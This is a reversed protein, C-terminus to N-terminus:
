TNEGHLNTCLYWRNKLNQQRGGEPYDMRSCQLHLCRVAGFRQCSQSLVAIFTSVAPRESLRTDKHYNLSPRRLCQYTINRRIVNRPGFYDSFRVKKASQVHNELCPFHTSVSHLTCHPISSRVYNNRSGRENSCRNTRAYMSICTINQAYAYEM